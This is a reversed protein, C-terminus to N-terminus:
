HILLKKELHQTGASLRFIYLGPTCKKDQATHRNWRMVGENAGPTIRQIIEGKVTYITIVPYKAGSCIRYSCYVTNNTWSINMTIDTSMQACLTSQIIPTITNDFKVRTDTALNVFNSERAILIQPAPLGKTSRITAVILQGNGWEIAIEYGGRAMFGSIKGKPWAAPLAPLLHIVGTQSQVLMEALAAVSGLNADIQFPPYIDWLNTTINSQLIKKYLSYAREGDFLRTWLASRWARGWGAGEAEDGRANLSVKVAKIYNLDLYPNIQKGPYLALLHTIHRHKDTKGDINDPKWEQLQGWSGIRLGPDLKSKTTIMTQRFASDVNLIRSSEITNTLLDWALQQDGSCGETFNGHEPSFSPSSILRNSDKKDPILYTTVFQAIGKLIPYVQNRLYTTDRTFAFHEWLSQAMWAHGLPFYFSTPYNHFGTFGFINVQNGMTWGQAGFYLQATKTGNAVNMNLFDVLPLITEGIHTVDSGWYNMQLNINLHYDADWRPTTSNNWIGQLNAPLTGPRSSAILMYRGYQFFLAELARNNGSTKYANLQADTAQAPPTQNLDITLAGFLKQYDKLHAVRISNYGKTVASDIDATVKAHPAVGKYTPYAMPAYDTGTSMFITVTDASSVSITSTNTTLTGGSNLVKFQAEFVMKNTLSGAIQLRGNNATVVTNTHPTVARLTITIKGPQNAYLRMAMVRDPYSVFYERKYIVANITFTVKAFASDLDLERRYTQTTSSPYTCDLYIDGFQQYAGFGVKPATIGSAAADAGSYNGQECLARMNTIVSLKSSAPNNGTYASSSGPGGTWLTHDNFQIHESAVGGFVMGGIYGNGIPLAQTQWDTAPTNYWLIYPQSYSLDIVLLVVTVLLLYYIMKSKFIM